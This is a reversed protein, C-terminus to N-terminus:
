NIFNILVSKCHEILSALYTQQDHSLCTVLPLLKGLMNVIVSCIEINSRHTQWIRKILVLVDDLAALIRPYVSEEIQLLTELVTEAEECNNAEELLLLPNKSDSHVSLKLVVRREQERVSEVATRTRKRDSKSEM